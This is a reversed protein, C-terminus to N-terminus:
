TEPAPSGTRLKAILEEPGARLTSLPAWGQLKATEVVSRLVAFGSAGSETRFSGSIKQKVRLPRVAREALNNTPPVAPDRLFKLVESRRKRLRLALNHGPRRKVRGRNKSALPPLEEHYRTGEGVLADYCEEMAAIEGGPVAGGSEAAKRAAKIAGALCGKMEGAWVEAASEVASGPGRLIHALCLAHDTNELRFCPAFCDHVATGESETMVDGRSEGLRYRCLFETCAVHFWSLSGNVRMGDFHRAPAGAAEARLQCQLEEFRGAGRRIMDHVTGHPIKVGFLHFLVWRLRQLPVPRVAPLYLVLAEVRPGYQAPAKVEEPYEGAATEGCCPCERGFVQHGSVELPKFDPLDHVQRSSRLKPEAGSLDGGCSGCVDPVHTFVRDPKDSPKLTRGRHGPQGCPKRNGPKPFAPKPPPKALGDSSPPRGSNRSNQGVRREIDAIREGLAAAESRLRENEADREELLRQLRAIEAPLDAVSAEPSAADSFFEPMPGTRFSSETRSTGDQQGKGLAGAYWTM